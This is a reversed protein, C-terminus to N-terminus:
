DDVQTKDNVDLNGRILNFFYHVVSQFLLITWLFQFTGGTTEPPRVNCTHPVAAVYLWCQLSVQFYGNINDIQITTM